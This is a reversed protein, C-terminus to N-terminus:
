RLVELEEKEEDAKSKTKVFHKALSSFADKWFTPSFFSVSTQNPDFDLLHGMLKKGAMVFFKVDDVSRISTIKRFIFQPTFFASYLEQTLELLKEQPFPTKMVPRRMDYDDYDETLLWGKEKCEKWLPTGPYPIVITAQMTYFYGKKFCYKAVDITRKADEYSEWPYGLMVTAHPELGAKAAMRAGIIADEEKTGKELKDLTKQNASEMGYLLFRFGAKAMLDYDKQELANFRMNCSYVVKKNYGSEILLECFKTLKPGIFMTGADDFIERVGYNDV